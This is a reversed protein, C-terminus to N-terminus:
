VWTIKSTDVGYKQGLIATHYIASASTRGAIGVPKGELDKATKVGSASRAFLANTTRVPDPLVIQEAAIMVLPAGRDRALLFGNISVAGVDGQGAMMLRTTDWVWMMKLDLKVGEPQVKGKVLAWHNLYHDVSYSTPNMVLGMYTLSVPDRATSAASAVAVLLTGVVLGVAAGHSRRSVRAIGGARRRVPDLEGRLRRRGAAAGDHEVEAPLRDDPGGRRPHRRTSGPGGGRRRGGRADDAAHPRHGRRLCRPARADSKRHRGAARRGDPGSRRRRHGVLRQRAAPVRRGPHRAPLRGANEEPRAHVAPLLPADLPRGGA